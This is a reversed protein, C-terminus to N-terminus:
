WHSSLDMIRMRFCKNIDMCAYFEFIPLIIEYKRLPIVSMAGEGNLVM